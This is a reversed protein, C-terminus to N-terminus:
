ASTESLTAIIPAGETVIITHEYQASRSAPDGVLTWGDDMEDVITSLTSLFLALFPTLDQLVVGESQNVADFLM